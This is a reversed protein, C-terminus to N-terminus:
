GNRKKRWEGKHNHYGALLLRARTLARVYDDLRDLDSDIEKQQERVQRQAQQEAQRQAQEQEDIAATLEALWGSGVYESIVHRGIRRKRYYYERGNRNEWPM